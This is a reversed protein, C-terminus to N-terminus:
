GEMEVIAWEPTDPMDLSLVARALVKGHGELYLDCWYTMGNDEDKPAETDDYFEMFENLFDYWLRQRAADVSYYYDVTLGHLTGKESRILAYM